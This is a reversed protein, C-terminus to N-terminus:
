RGIGSPRAPSLRDLLTVAELLSGVTPGNFHREPAYTLHRSLDAATLRVARMGVARAGSLEHGGGDGIYLCESPVVGLRQCATRYMSPHPKCQGIDVSYVCTDLLPAVPLEPLFAPLEYTCDSVLATALGRARVERLTEVADARLTTDARVAAVRADAADRLVPEPPRVRLQRCIWRLSQEADGFAGRARERFSEDLLRLYASPDAGLLHAVEAHWPGRTVGTTLTGFFDFLVARYPAM